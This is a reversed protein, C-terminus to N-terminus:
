RPTGAAARRIMITVFGLNIREGVSIDARQKSLRRLPCTRGTATGTRVDGVFTGNASDLDEISLPPGLHLIAHPPSVSRSNIRLDCEEARSITLSGQAPLPLMTIADGAVVALELRGHTLPVSDVPPVICGDQANMMVHHLFGVAVERLGKTDTRRE